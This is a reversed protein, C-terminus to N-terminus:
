DDHNGPCDAYLEQIAKFDVESVDLDGRLLSEGYDEWEKLPKGKLAVRIGHVDEEFEELTGVICPFQVTPDGSLILRVSSVLLERDHVSEYINIHYTDLGEKTVFPQESHRHAESAANYLAALSKVRNWIYQATDFLADSHICYASPPMGFLRLTM